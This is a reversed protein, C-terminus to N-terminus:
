NTMQCRADSMKCRVIIHLAQERLWIRYRGCIFPFGSDLPRLSSFNTGGVILLSSGKRQVIVVFIPTAKMILCHADACLRQLVAPTGTTSAVLFFVCDPNNAKSDRRRGQVLKNLMPWQIPIRTVYHKGSLVIENDLKGTKRGLTLRAM